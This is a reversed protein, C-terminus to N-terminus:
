KNFGTLTGFCEFLWSQVNRIANGMSDEKYLDLFEKPKYKFTRAEILDDLDGKEDEDILPNALDMIKYYKELNNQEFLIQPYAKNKKLNEASIEFLEKFEMKRETIDPFLKIVRKQGMGKIGKVVDSSDGVLTKYLIFNEVLVGYKERVMVPTYYKKEMPRFVTINKNVLQLFDQDSSVITVKSNKEKSLTTALYAIIDDAETRDKSVIKIPLCRLYHILRAMQDYKSENEEEIDNFVDWNTIRSNNRNSKYEPVLNRRNVSSGIGDFVVYVSTPNNNRILYGLSRIFGSLGGIHSGDNNVYNIIAFNRLFLNMGDILMVRSHKNLNEPPTQNELNNFIKLLDDNM